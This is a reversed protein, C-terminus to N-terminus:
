LPGDVLDGLGRADPLGGGGLLEGDELAPTDEGGPARALLDVVPGVAGADEGREAAEGVDDGAAAGFLLCWSGQPLCGMAPSRPALCEYRWIPIQRLSNRHLGYELDQHNTTALGPKGGAEM